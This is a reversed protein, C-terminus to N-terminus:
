LSMQLMQMNFEFLINGRDIYTKKPDSHGAQGKAEYPLGRFRGFRQLEHYGGLLCSFNNGQLPDKILLTAELRLHTKQTSGPTFIGAVIQIKMMCPSHNLRKKGLKAVILKCYNQFRVRNRVVVVETSEVSYKMWSLPIPTFKFSSRKEKSLLAKKWLLM